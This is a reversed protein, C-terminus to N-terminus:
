RSPYLFRWRGKGSITPAKSLYNILDDLFGPEFKKKPQKSTKLKRTSKYSIYFKSSNNILSKKVSSITQRSVGLIQSIEKYTKSRSLLYIIILRRALIIKETQSLLNDLIEELKQATIARKLKELFEQWVKEELQKNIETRFFKEM